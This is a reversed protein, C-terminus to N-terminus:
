AHATPFALGIQSNTEFPLGMLDEPRLPTAFAVFASRTVGPQLAFEEIRYGDRSLFLPKTLPPSIPVASRTPVGDAPAAGKRGIRM